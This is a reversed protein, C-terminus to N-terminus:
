EAPAAAAPVFVRLTDDTIEWGLGLPAVVADLLRERDVDEVRVRVIEAPSIGRAALGASDLEPRLGLRRAIAALAQDLPAELRLSFREGAVTPPRRRRSTPPGTAPPVAHRPAPPLPVITAGGPSWDARLDFQALVLDIREALTLPLLRGAPLHDHPIAELGTIDMGAATVLDAVLAQPRSGAPWTWAARAALRRRDDAPLGALTRDRMREAAAARGAVDRPVLRISSALVEVEAAAIAAVRHLVTALPLGDSDLTIPLTHDIRRDVVVPTAAMTSVREAWAALPLGTWSARIPTELATTVADAAPAFAAAAAVLAGAALTGLTFARGSRAAISM